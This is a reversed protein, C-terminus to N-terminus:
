GLWNKVFPKAQEALNPDDAPMWAIREDHPQFWTKQQRAFRHTEFKIREVAEELTMHGEFYDYLQRYGLGSIAPMKRGVGAEWFGRVEAELGAEMMLDVRRDIREYLWERDCALGILRIDYPPPSKEQLQSIPQGAVLTVELARIVRRVNRVDLTEARVPDLFRFWRGLEEGGMAELAKRLAPQPAVRPIGWGEVVAMVYQGTGGVLIPLRGRRHIDDITAFARDQYEGLTITETPECIDLLHHPIGAMEAVTPKATGIDMGRYFLRSDASVIEGNFAKALAISLSTKGSATPGVIVLLPPSGLNSIPSQLNTM